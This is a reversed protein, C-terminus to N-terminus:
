ALSMRHRAPMTFNHIRVIADVLGVREKRKEQVYSKFISDRQETVYKRIELEEAITLNQREIRDNVGVWDIDEYKKGSIFKESLYSCFQAVTIKLVVKVEKM